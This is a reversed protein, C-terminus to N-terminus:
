YIELGTLFQIVMPKDLGLQKELQEISEQSSDEGLILFAPNGPTLHVIMFVIISVIFMVPIASLLRRITYQLM